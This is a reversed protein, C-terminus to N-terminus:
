HTVGCFIFVTEDFIVYGSFFLQQYKLLIFCHRPFCQTKRPMAQKEGFCVRGQVGVFKNQSFIGEKKLTQWRASLNISVSVRQIVLPSEDTRM